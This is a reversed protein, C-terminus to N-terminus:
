KDIRDTGSDPRRLHAYTRGHILNRIASISITFGKSKLCEAIEPGTRGAGWSDIVAQAYKDPLSPVGTPRHRRREM